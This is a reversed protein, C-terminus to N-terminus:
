LVDYMFYTLSLLRVTFSRFLYYFCWTIIVNYYLGVLFSVITSCIGLGGLWPHITKWVGISGQNFRQGIGM